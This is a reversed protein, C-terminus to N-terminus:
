DCYYLLLVTQSAPTHQQIGQICSHSFLEDDPHLVSELASVHEQCVPRDDTKM